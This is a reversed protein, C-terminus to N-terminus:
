TFAFLAGLLAQFALGLLCLRIFQPNLREDLRPNREITM